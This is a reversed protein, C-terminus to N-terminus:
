LKLRVNSLLLNNYNFELTIWGNKSKFNIWKINNLKDIRLIDSTFKISFWFIIILSSM